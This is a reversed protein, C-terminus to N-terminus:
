KEDDDMLVSYHNYREMIEEVFEYTEAGRAYGNLCVSDKYYIPKSKNLMYYDVNNTWVNPNRGYKEALRRADQLNGLGSNYAALIFKIRETSDTVTEPIKMDIAKILRGGAAIQEEVTSTSDIGYKTMIVPMLQMLGYAGRVSSIDPNFGSEQCILSALLKWDWGIQKSVHKIADDYISIHGSVMSNRNDKTIFVGNSSKFYRDYTYRMKNQQNFEALWENIAILMSSDNEKKLAWGIQQAFSIPTKVDIETYMKSAIRAIYDDALTYNIEGKAVKKMLDNESLSDISIIFITDGIEEELNRLRTEFHSNRPVYITKCALELPSRVLHNEIEDGTSMSKWTNPMRQVLVISKSLIPDTFFYDKKGEKTITLGAAIIDVEGSELMKYCSDINDSVKLELKLNLVECLDKLLDYQFGAPHGKHIYYNVMNDETVAILKGKHQLRQLSTLTDEAAAEADDIQRFCGSFLFSLLV